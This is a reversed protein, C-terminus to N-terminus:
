LLPRTLIISSALGRTGNDLACTATTSEDPAHALYGSEVTITPVSTTALLDTLPCDPMDLTLQKYLWPLCSAQPTYLVSLRQTDKCQDLRMGSLVAGLLM